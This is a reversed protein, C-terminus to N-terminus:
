GEPFGAIITKKQYSPNQSERFLGLSDGIAWGQPSLPNMESVNSCCMVLLVELSACKSALIKM